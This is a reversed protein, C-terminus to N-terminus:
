ETRIFEIFKVSRYPILISQRPQRPTWQKNGDFDYIEDIYLDREETTSAALSYYGFLGAVQSGDSFTVLIYVPSSLRGFAWDWGTPYSSVLSIGLEALFSRWWGKQTGLGWVLGIGAPLLALVLVGIFAQSWASRTPDLLYDVLPWFIAFYLASLILYEVIYEATKPRRGTILSARVALLILGPAVFFLVLRINEVSGLKSLEM